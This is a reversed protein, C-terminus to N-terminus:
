VMSKAPFLGLWAEGFIPDAVKISLSAQAPAASQQKRKATPPPEVWSVEVVYTNGHLEVADNSFVVTRNETAM